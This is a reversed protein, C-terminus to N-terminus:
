KETNNDTLTDISVGIRNGVKWKLTCRHRTQTTDLVLDFTPPIDAERPILVCAGHESTDLVACATPVATDAAIIRGTKLTLTRSGRRRESM